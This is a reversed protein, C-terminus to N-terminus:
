YIKKEKYNQTPDPRDTGVCRSGPTSDLENQNADSKTRKMMMSETVDM